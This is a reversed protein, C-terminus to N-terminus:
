YEFINDIIYGLTCPCDIFIYASFIFLALRFFPIKPEPVETLKEVDDGYKARYKEYVEPSLCCYIKPFYRIKKSPKVLPFNLYITEIGSTLSKEQNLNYNDSYFQLLKAMKYEFKPVEPRVFMYRRFYVGLLSGDIFYKIPNNPKDKVESKSVDTSETDGPRSNEEINNVTGGAKKEQIKDKNVQAGQQTAANSSHITKLVKPKNNAKNEDRRKKLVQKYDLPLSYVNHADPVITILDSPIITEPYELLRRYIVQRLIESNRQHRIKKEIISVEEPKRQKPKIKPVPLLKIDIFRYSSNDEELLFKDPKNSKAKAPNLKEQKTLKTGVSTHFGSYRSFFAIGPKVVYKKHLHQM